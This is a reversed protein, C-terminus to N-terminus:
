AAVIPRSALAPLGALLTSPRSRVSRAGQPGGLVQTRHLYHRCRQVRSEHARCKGRGDDTTLSASRVLDDSLDASHTELVVSFEWCKDATGITKPTVKVTVGRETSSQVSLPVATAQAIAASPAGALAFAVVIMIAAFGWVGSHSVAENM